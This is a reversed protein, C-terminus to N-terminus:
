RTMAKSEVIIMTITSKVKPLKRIYNSINERLQDMSSSEIKVVIDYVSYVVFVEKVEPITKLKEFVEDEAGPEVNILVFASAM